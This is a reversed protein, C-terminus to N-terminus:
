KIYQVDMCMCGLLDVIPISYGPLSLQLARIKRQMEDYLNVANSKNEPANEILKQYKGHSMCGLADNNSIIYRRQRDLTHLTIKGAIVHPSVGSTGFANSLMRHHPQKDAVSRELSEILCQSVKKFDFLADFYELQKFVPEFIHGLDLDRHHLSTDAMFKQADEKAENHMALMSEYISAPEIESACKQCAVWSFDYTEVGKAGVISDICQLARTLLYKHPQVDILEGCRINPCAITLPKADSFAIEPASLLEEARQPKKVGFKSENLGQNVERAGELGFIKAIQMATCDPVYELLRMIPPYLQMKKYWEVDVSLDSSGAIEQPHYCHTSLKGVSKHTDMTKKGIVYPILDGVQVSLNLEKMRMAVCVHPHDAANAYEGPERNLAKTIVFDNLAVAGNNIESVRETIFERVLRGVNELAVDESFILDIVRQLMQKSLPCWERRIIDLGKIELEKTKGEGLFDVIKLSAYKKKQLLLLKRFIGDIDIELTKYCKNITDKIIAATRRVEILNKAFAADIMVSDTDGYIVKLRPDVKTVLSVANQLANRGELTVLEAIAPAYFRGMQFGLCGYMSNATLKLAKQRINLRSLQEPNSTSQMLKKVQKRGEVIERLTKPLICRHPCPSDTHNEKQCSDCVLSLMTTQMSTSLEEYTQDNGSLDSTNRRVTTFCLNFEQIISPYLSNFDLLLVYSDYLGKQPELVMGGTYQPKRRNSTPGHKEGHDDADGDLKEESSAQPKAHFQKDPIVFKASHFKHLLLYEIRESRNGMLTRSWIGGTVNTMRKTLPIIDINLAIAASYIAKDVSSIVLSFLSEKSQYADVISRGKGLIDDEPSQTSDAEQLGLKNGIGTDEINLESVIGNLSYNTAKIYEKALLYTDCTLRGALVEKEAFTSEGLGGPGSQLKPMDRLKLRGIASWTSVNLAQCRHLLVDLHFGLFNHGIFVDPDEVKLKKLLNELLVKENFALEPSQLSNKTFMDALQFPIPCNNSPKRVITWLSKSLDLLKATKEQDLKEIVMLSAGYIENSKSKPCFNSILSLSCVKLPPIPLEHNNEVFIQKYSPVIFELPCHSIQHVAKEIGEARLWCPGMIKRKLLVMEIMSQNAGFIAKVTKLGTDMPINPGNHSYKFKVWWSKEKPVESKEFSYWRYVNKFSRKKIGHAQCVESLERAVDAITVESGDAHSDQPLVLLCRETSQFRLCCSQWLRDRYVKGFILVEGTNKMEKADIWFMKVSTSNLNDTSLCALEKEPTILNDNLAFSISPAKTSRVLSKKGPSQKTMPTIPSANADPEAKPTIRLRKSDSTDDPEEIHKQPTQLSREDDEFDGFLIDTMDSHGVPTEMRDFAHNPELLAEVRDNMNSILSLRSDIPDFSETTSIHNLSHARKGLAEMISIQSTEKPPAPVDPKQAARKGKPVEGTPKRLKKTQLEPRTNHVDPNYDNDFLDDDYALSSLGGSQSVGDAAEIPCDQNEGSDHTEDDARSMIHTFIQDTFDRKSPM